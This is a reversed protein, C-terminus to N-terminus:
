KTVLDGEGVVDDGEGVLREAEREFNGISVGLEARLTAVQRELSAKQLGLEELRAGLRQTDLRLERRRESLTPDSKSLGDRETRAALGSRTVVGMDEVVEDLRTETKELADVVQLALSRLQILFPTRRGTYSDWPYQPRDNGSSSSSDVVFSAKGSM